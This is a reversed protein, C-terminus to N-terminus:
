GVSARGVSGAKLGIRPVAVARDHPGRRRRNPSTASGQRGKRAHLWGQYRDDFVVYRFARAM